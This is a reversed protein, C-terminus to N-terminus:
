DEIRLCAVLRDHTQRLSVRGALCADAVRPCRYNFPCGMENLTSSNDDTAAAGELGNVLDIGSAPDCSVLLRTYPHLPKGLISRTPGQEVIIGRYMVVLSETMMSVLPLDHAIIIYSLEREQRLRMLLDAIRIKMQVDLASAPEDCVIIQPDLALARAIVVRQAQGGSIERPYRSLLSKELGVELLLSAARDWADQKTSLRHLLLPQMISAAIRQSPDLAAMADQWVLQVKRARTKREARRDYVKGDILVDGSTPLTLGLVISALTTKGAGSEGVVGVAEGKELKMNVDTLAPIRGSKYTKTLNKVELLPM